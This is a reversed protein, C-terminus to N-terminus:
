GGTKRYTSGVITLGTVEGNMRNISPEGSFFARIFHHQVGTFEETIVFNQRAAKMVDSFDIGEDKFSVEARPAIPTGVRDVSNDQNTIAENSQDSAMVTFTGRLALTNGGSLRVSMRGGFDNGAM